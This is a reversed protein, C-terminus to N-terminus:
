ILASLDHLHLEDASSLERKENRSRYFPKLFCGENRKLPVIVIETATGGFETEKMEVSLHRIIHVASVNMRTVAGGEFVKHHM